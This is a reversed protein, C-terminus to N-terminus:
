TQDRHYDLINEVGQPVEVQRTVERQFAHLDQAESRPTRVDEIKEYALHTKQKAQWSDDTHFQVEFLQDSATDRWRSNVGKYDAREWTNRRVELDCGESELFSHAEWIGQRYSGSPFLFTYRVADHVEKALETPTKDPNRLIMRALKEKFRDPSKLAFKDTDPVLRGHELQSEIRRMAPTLGHDGYNGDADR